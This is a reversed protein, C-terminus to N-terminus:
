HGDGVHWHGLVLRGIQDRQIEPLYNIVGNLVVPYHAHWYVLRGTNPSPAAMAPLHQWHPLHQLWM